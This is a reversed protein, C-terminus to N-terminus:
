NEKKDEKDKTNDKTDDNAHKNIEMYQQNLEQAFEQMEEFSRGNRNEFFKKRGMLKLAYNLKRIRKSFKFDIRFAPAVYKEVEEGLYSSYRKIVYGKRVTRQFSGGPIYIDTKGQILLEEQLDEVAALIDRIVKRRDPEWGVQPILERKKALTFVFYTKGYPVKKRGVKSYDIFQRAHRAYEVREEYPIKRRAM